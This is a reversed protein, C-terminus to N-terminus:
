ENKEKKKVLVDRQKNYKKPRIFYYRSEYGTDAEEAELYPHYSEWGPFDGSRSGDDTLTPDAERWKEFLYATHGKDKQPACNIEWEWCGYTECRDALDPATDGSSLDDGNVTYKVTGWLHGSSRGPAKNWRYMYGGGLRWGIESVWKEIEAPKSWNAAVRIYSDSLRSWGTVKVKSELGQEMEPHRMDLGADYKIWLVLDSGPLNPTSVSITKIPVLLPIAAAIPNDLDSLPTSTIKNM